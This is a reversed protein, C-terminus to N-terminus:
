ISVTSDGKKKALHRIDKKYFDENCAHSDTVQYPSLAVMIRDEKGASWPEDIRARSKCFPNSVNCGM